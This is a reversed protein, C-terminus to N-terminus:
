VDIQQLYNVLYDNKDQRAYDALSMGHCDKSSLNAGNEHLFKLISIDASKKSFSGRTYMAVTTGKYNSANVDAGCSVLYEVINLHNYYVAVMLPTWGKENQVNIDNFFHAYKRLGKIDGLQCLDMVKPYVDKYVLLDYDITSIILKGIDEDILCGVKEYSKSSLIKSSVINHGMIQPLQYERFAYARIQNHIEFATKNLDIILNNYDISKRSYYTSDRSSQKSVKINGTVLDNFYSKVIDTGTKIYKLYLDRSTDKIDIRIKRQAIIDGTDIGCDILHLTVGSEKEGNLIPWASTFMGKYKPLLSFHINYIRRTKFFTPNILRYYEMSLFTLDEIDYLEDLSCININLESVAKRFSRQWGDQGIDNKDTLALVDAVNFHQLAYRLIDVAINNKGAVCIKM